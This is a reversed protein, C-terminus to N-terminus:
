YQGRLSHRHLHVYSRRPPHCATASFNYHEKIDGTTKCKRLRPTSAEISLSPLFHPPLSDIISSLSESRMRVFPNFRPLPALRKHSLPSQVSRSPGQSTNISHRTRHDRLTASTTNDLGRQSSANPPPSRRGRYSGSPYVRAHRAWRPLRDLQTSTHDRLDVARESRSTPLSPSLSSHASVLRHSITSGSSSSAVSVEGHYPDDSLPVISTTPSSPSFSSTSATKLSTNVRARQRLRLARSVDGRALADAAELSLSSSSGKSMDDRKEEHKTAHKHQHIRACAQVASGQAQSGFTGFKRSRTRRAEYAPWSPCFCELPAVYLLPFQYSLIAM